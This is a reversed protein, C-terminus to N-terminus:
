SQQSRQLLHYIEDKLRLKQKKLSELQELNCTIPDKALRNIQQDLQQHEAYLLAFHPDHQRLQQILAKHEEM